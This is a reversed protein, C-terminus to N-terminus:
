TVVEDMMVHIAEAAIELIVASGECLNMARAQPVLLYAKLPFGCEIQITVLPGLERLGIVRGELRNMGPSPQDGHPSRFMVDEARISLRVFKAM